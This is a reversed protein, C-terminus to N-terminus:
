NERIHGFPTKQQNNEKVNSYEIVTGVQIMKKLETVLLKEDCQFDM